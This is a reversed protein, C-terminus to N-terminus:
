FPAVPAPALHGVSASALQATMAAASSIGSSCCGPLYTNGMWLPPVWVPSVASFFPPLFPYRRLSFLSSSCFPLPLCLCAFTAPFLSASCSSFLGFSSSFASHSLGHVALLSYSCLHSFSMTDCVCRCFCVCVDIINASFITYSRSLALLSVSHHLRPSPSRWPLRKSPVECVSRSSLYASALMGILACVSILSSLYISLQVAPFLSLCFSLFSLRVCLCFCLYTSLAPPPPSM